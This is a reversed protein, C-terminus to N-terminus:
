QMIGVCTGHEDGLFKRVTMAVDSRMRLNRQMTPRRIDLYRHRLRVAESAQTPSRLSALTTIFTAQPFHVNDTQAISFPLPSCTNLIELDELVVEVGGTNMGKLSRTHVNYHIVGVKNKMSDPRKRVLGSVSVCSELTLSKFHQWLTSNAHKSSNFDFSFLM